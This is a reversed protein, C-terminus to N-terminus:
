VPGLHKPQGNVFTTNMEKFVTGAVNEAGVLVVVDEVVGGGDGGEHDNSAGGALLALDDEVRSLYNWHLFSSFIKNIISFIDM